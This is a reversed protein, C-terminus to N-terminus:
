LLCPLPTNKSQNESLYLSGDARIGHSRRFLDTENTIQLLLSNKNKTLTFYLTDHRKRYDTLLKRITKVQQLRIDFGFTVHLVNYNNQLNAIVEHTIKYFEHGCRKYTSLKTSVHHAAYTNQQHLEIQEKVEFPITITIYLAFVLAFIPISIEM